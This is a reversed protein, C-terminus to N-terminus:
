WGPEFSDSRSSSRQVIHEIQVYTPHKLSYRIHRVVDAVSVEPRVGVFQCELPKKAPVHSSHANGRKNAPKKRENILHRNLHEYLANDVQERRVGMNRSCESIIHHNRRIIDMAGDDDYNIVAKLDKVM